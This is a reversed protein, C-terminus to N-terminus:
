FGKDLLILIVFILFFLARHLVCHIRGVIFFVAIFIILFNDDTFLRVLDTQIKIDYMFVRLSRFRHHFM